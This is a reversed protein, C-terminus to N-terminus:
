VQVLSRRLAERIVDDYIPKAFVHESKGSAGGPFDFVLIADGYAASRCFDLVAEMGTVDLNGGFILRLLFSLREVPITVGDFLDLYYRQRGPARFIGKTKRPLADTHRILHSVPRETGKTRLLESKSLDPVIGLEQLADHSKEIVRRWAEMTADDQHLDVCSDASFSRVAVLCFIIVKEKDTLRSKAFLAFDKQDIYDVLKPADLSHESLEVEWIGKATIVLRGPNDTERILGRALLETVHDADIKKSEISAESLLGFRTNNKVDLGSLLLSGGRLKGHFQFRDLCSQYFRKLSEQTAADM